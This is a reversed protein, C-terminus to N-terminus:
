RWYDIQSSEILNIQAWLIVENVTRREEFKDAYEGRVLLVAATLAIRKPRPNLIFRNGGVILRSADRRYKGV